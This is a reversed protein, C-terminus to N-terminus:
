SKNEDHRRVIIELRRLFFYRRFGENESAGDHHSNKEKDLDRRVKESGGMHAEAAADAHICQTLPLANLYTM